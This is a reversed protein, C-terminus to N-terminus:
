GSQEGDEAHQENAPLWGLFFTSLVQRSFNGANGHQAGAAVRTPDMRRFAAVDQQYLGDYVVNDRDGSRDIRYLDEKATADTAAAAGWLPHQSARMTDGAAAAQRELEVIQLRWFTASKSIIRADTGVVVGLAHLLSTKNAEPKGIPCHAQM